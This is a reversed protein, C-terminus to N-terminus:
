GNVPANKVVTPDLRFIHYAGALCLLLLTSTLSGVTASAVVRM